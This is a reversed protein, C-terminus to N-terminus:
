VGTVTCDFSFLSGAEAFVPEGSIGNVFTVGDLLRHSITASITFTMTEGAGLVIGTPYYVFTAWGTAFPAPKDYLSSVDAVPGGNVSVTTTQTQLFDEALGANKTAWGVSVVVETGAPVTAQGGGVFACRTASVISTSTAHAATPVALAALALLAAITRM